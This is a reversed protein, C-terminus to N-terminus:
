GKGFLRDKEQAFQSDTMRRFNPPPPLEPAYRSSGRVAATVAARDETAQQDPIRRAAERMKKFEKRLLHSARQDHERSDRRHDWADKLEPNLQYEAVLYRKAFDDPVPLGELEGEAMDLIMKFDAQSQQVHAQVAYHQQLDNIFRAQADSQMQLQLIDTDTFGNVKSLDVNQPAQPLEAAPTVQEKATRGEDFQALLESLDGLDPADGRPAPVVDLPAMSDAASMEGGVDAGGALPDTDSSM